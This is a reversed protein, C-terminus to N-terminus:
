IDSVDTIKDLLANVKKKRIELAKKIKKEDERKQKIKDYNRIGSIGGGVKDVAFSGMNTAKEGVWDGMAAGVGAGKLMDEIEGTSAGLAAGTLGLSFASGSEVASSAIGKIAEGRKNKLESIKDEHAERMKQLELIDKGSFNSKVNQGSTPSKAAVASQKERQEAQISENLLRNGESHDGRSWAEDARNLLENSSTGGISGGETAGGSGAGGEGAGDASVGMAALKDNYRKNEKAMGKNADKWGKVGGTVKKVNNGLRKKVMGGIAMGTMLSKLGGKMSPDMIGSKIGMMKKVLDEMKSISALGVIGIIGLSSNRSTDGQGTSTSASFVILIVVIALLFAQLTQMFVLTCFEKIWNSLFGGAKSAVSKNIFDYVVMIPAMIALIIIYFLRKVYAFFFLLSQAVFITYMISNEVSNKTAVIAGEKAVLASKRFYDALTAIPMIVDTAKGNKLGDYTKALNYYEKMATVRDESFYYNTVAYGHASMTQESIFVEKLQPYTAFYTNVNNTYEKVLNDDKSNGYLKSLKEADNMWEINTLSISNISKLLDKIGEITDRKGSTTFFAGFGDWFGTGQYPTLNNVLPSEKGYALYKELITRNYKNEILGKVENKEDESVFLTSTADIMDKVSKVQDDLNMELKKGAVANTAIEGAVEVMKENAFFVFSIFYHITFLLVLAFLWNTIAEKYKAKESAIATTLLKIAMVIVAIGFFVISLSLITFYISRIIGSLDFMLTNASPNIFNVDLLPVANFLIMDAWPFVTAGTVMNSLAGLIKEIILGFFYILAALPQLLANDKTAANVSADDVTAVGNGYNTNVAAYINGRSMIIAVVLVVIIIVKLYKNIKM